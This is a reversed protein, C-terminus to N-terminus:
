GNTVTDLTDSNLPMVLKYSQGSQLQGYVFISIATGSEIQTTQTTVTCSQVQDFYRLIADAALDCYARLTTPDLPQNLIQILNYGYGADEGVAITFEGTEDNILGGQPTSLFRAIAQETGVTSNPDVESMYVDCDIEAGNGTFGCSLDSGFGLATATNAVQSGLALAIGDPETGGAKVKAVYDAVLADIGDLMNM